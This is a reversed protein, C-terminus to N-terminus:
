SNAPEDNCAAWLTIWKKLGQFINSQIKSYYIRM